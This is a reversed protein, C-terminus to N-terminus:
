YIVLEDRMAQSRGSLEGPQGAFATTRHRALCAGTLEPHHKAAEALACQRLESDLEISPMNVMMTDRASPVSMIISEICRSQKDEDCWDRRQM